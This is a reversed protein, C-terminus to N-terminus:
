SFILGEGTYCGKKPTLCMITSNAKVCENYAVGNDSNLGSPVDISIIKAGKDKCINM